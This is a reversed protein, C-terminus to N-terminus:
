FSRIKWSGDAERAFLLQFSYMDGNQMTRFEYEAFNSSINILNIDGLSAAFQPLVQSLATFQQLYSEKSGEVFYVLASSINGSSLATKMGNWIQKFGADATNKDLVNVIVTEPPFTNGVIDTVIVQSLYLGQQQYGVTVNSHSYCTLQNAGSGDFDWAYSLVPNQSAVTAAIAVDLKAQGNPKPTPIGTNPLALLTITDPQAEGTVTVSAQHQVDNQDMAIVKITNSNAALPVQAAFYKGNVEVPYTVTGASNVMQIIVGNVPVTTDMAGKVITKSGNITSGNSPSAILVTNTGAPPLSIGTTFNSPGVLYTGTGLCYINTDDNGSSESFSASISHNSTVDAFSYTSVAGVSVGDILVNLVRSGTNPMMTFIQSAGSKISIAGRPMIAGNADSTATITYTNMTFHVIITHNASVNTFTYTSVAGVSVGDVFVDAIHYATNPTMTFTATAGTNVNVYGAPEITGNGIATATVTNLNIEFSVNITHNATINTFTYTNVAGVSAGDVLVNSVHYKGSPTMTFVKNSGNAVAVTGSPSISGYTEASANILRITQNIVESYASYNTGDFAKVRYYYTTNDSLRTDSYTTVNAGLSGVQKYQGGSSTAREVFYGTEYATNDTWSLNIQSASAVTAFVATPADLTVTKANATNSYSSYTSGSKCRVRYYYTTNQTLGTNQYSTVNAGLTAVVRWTGTSAPAREVYYSAENTANDQWSLNIQKSSAATTTLNTPAPPAAAAWVVRTISSFVLLIASLFFISLRIARKVLALKIPSIHKNRM